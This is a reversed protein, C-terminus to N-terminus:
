IVSRVRGGCRQLSSFCGIKIMGGEKKREVVPLIAARRAGFSTLKHSDNECVSKQELVPPNQSAMKRFNLRTKRRQKM